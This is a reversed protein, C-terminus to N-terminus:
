ELNNLFTQRVKELGVLCGYQFIMDDEQPKGNELLAGFLYEPQVSYALLPGEGTPSTGSVTLTFREGQSGWDPPFRISYWGDVPLEANRVNTQILTSGTEVDVLTVELADHPNGGPSNVRVRMEALGDCVPVFEQVLTVASSVPQSSRLLPSFNKYFPQYCIGLKYYSAGCDVHYTLILGISYALVAALSFLRVASRGPQFRGFSSLGHIALLLLPLIPIFYRGQVGYVFKEGVATFTLYLSLLTFFYCLLFVFLLSVRTRRNPRSDNNLSLALIVAVALFVYTLLPVSGYDYGYVGAWQTLYATGFTLPNALIIGAFAFPHSIIYRVQEVANVGGSAELGPNPSIRNWGVVEVGFLVVVGLILLPYAAKGLFRSPPLLLFPLVALPYINPKAIFLLALLLFLWGAEKGSIKTKGAIQLTGAIFLFGIGNTITDASITSAQYVAMPAAVLVALLWKGFPILRVALWALLLYSLLGAFRSIYYAPLAPLDFRGIGYRLAIAQPLLLPPAYRSRPNISGYFYDRDYLKLGGYKEWYDFGVAGVLPQRRYSLEIYINPFKAQRWAQEGPVMKLNSLQWVRYFHQEEDYGAGLPTMGIMIIGFILLSILVFIEAGSMHFGKLGKVSQIDGKLVEAIIISFILAWDRGAPVFHCM